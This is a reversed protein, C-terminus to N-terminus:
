WLHATPIIDFLFKNYVYYLFVHQCLVLLFYGVVIHPAAIVHENLSFYTSNIYKAIM